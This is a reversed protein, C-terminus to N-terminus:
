VEKAKTISNAKNTINKQNNQQHKLVTSSYQITLKAVKNTIM